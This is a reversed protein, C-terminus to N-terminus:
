AKVKFYDEVTLKALLYLFDLIETAQKENAVIDNKDLVQIAKIVTIRRVTTKVISNKISM